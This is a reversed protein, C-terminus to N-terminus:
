GADPAPVEDLRVPRHERLSRTGAEAVREAQLADLLTCPSPRVGAVVETFAQLEARYAPLFREMFVPYPTGGPFRVGPEVSRLPLRDDLGVAISDQSGHVELRVDYGRPNYRTNSVLALTGDDLTLVVAATDVDGLEAFFAAGRNSGTAYVEVVERGSVWRVADFDHVACDRLLGGSTAVYDRPPPSPDLTTSRLTHLWGLEGSRVARYAAVFGADFRRQYGVQVAVGTQRVRDLVQVSEELTGAIPKECFVPVGARTAALLLEPHSATGSAVVVGDVGAALVAAASDAVEAGVRVAVEEARAPVLDSVVLREVAPLDALTQAHFEGIRGLGLLGLRVPLGETPVPGDDPM